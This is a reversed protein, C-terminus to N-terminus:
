CLNAFYYHIEWPSTHVLLRRPVPSDLKKFQVVSVNSGVALRKRLVMFLGTFDVFLM